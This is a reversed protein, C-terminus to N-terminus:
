KNGRLLSVQNKLLSIEKKDEVRSASLEKIAKNAEILYLTLEEVKEMLRKQMDGLELGNKEIAAAAPINPLHKNAKIFRETEELSKLKYDDAFVYDPWSAVTKVVFESGAIKGKAALIFDSFNGLDGGVYFKGSNKVYVRDTANTRFIVDFGTNVNTGIKLDSGAAQIFGVNSTVNVFQMIPNFGQMRAIEGEVMNDGGGMYGDVHLLAAPALTQIGLRKLVTTNGNTAIRLYENNASKFQFGRPTVIGAKFEMFGSNTTISGIMGTAPSRGTFSINPGFTTGFNSQLDINAKSIVADNNAFTSLTADKNLVNGITMDGDNFLQVRDVGGTRLIVKGAANEINSGLRIDDGNLQLVGKNVGDQQLQLTPNQDNMIMATSSSNTADVYLRADDTPNGIGLLGASSLFMRDANGTRVIFAGTPNTLVTGLKFDNGLTQMFGTPIGAKQLLIFPDQDDVITLTNGSQNTGDIHLVATPSPTGIGVRGLGTILAKGNANANFYGGIGTTAYGGIGVGNLTNGRVAISALGTAYGLLASGGNLNHVEFSAGDTDFAGFYPLSFSEISTLQKVWGDNRRLYVAQEDTVFVSLGAVPNQIDNMNQKTMRPLLLGKNNGGDLELVASPVPAVPTGGIKVQANVNAFLLILFASVVILKM